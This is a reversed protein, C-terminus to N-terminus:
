AFAFWVYDRDGVSWHAACGHVRRFGNITFLDLRGTRVRNVAARGSQRGCIVCGYRNATSCRDWEPLHFHVPEAPLDPDVVDNRDRNEGARDVIARRRFFQRCGRRVGDHRVARIVAAVSAAARWNNQLEHIIRGPYKLLAEIVLPPSAGKPM